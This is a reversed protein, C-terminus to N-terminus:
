FSPPTPAIAAIPNPIQGVSTLVGTGPNLRFLTSGGGEGDRTVGFLQSGARTLGVIQSSGPLGSLAVINGVTSDALSITHLTGTTYQVLYMTSADRPAVSAGTGTGDPTAGVVTFLGTAPDIRALRRHQQSHGVLEEGDFHIDTIRGASGAADQLPGIAEFTGTFPDLRGLFQPTNRCRNVAYVTGDAAIAMGHVPEILDAVHEIRLPSSSPDVYLLRSSRRESLLLGPGSYRFGGPIVAAGNGNEVRVELRAFPLADDGAPPIEATLETDSIVEVSSAEVGGITVRAQGADHAQFGQGVITVTGGGDPHGHDPSVTTAIPELNYRLAAPLMAYGNENFVIVDLLADPEAGAPATFTLTSDDVAEVDGAVLTGVVVHNEGADNSTFGSGSVTVTTGGAIGARDPSIAEIIPPPNDNGSSTVSGCGTALALCLLAPRNM